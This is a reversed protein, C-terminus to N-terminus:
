HLREQGAAGAEDARVEGLPQEIEPVLHEIRSLRDVPDISLMECRLPEGRNEYTTSETVFSGSRASIISRQSTTNWRAAATPTLSITSCGTCVISVLTCPVSTTSLCAALFFFSTKM